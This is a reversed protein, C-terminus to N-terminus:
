SRSVGLPSSHTQKRGGHFIKSSLEQGTAHRAALSLVYKPPYHGGKHIICFKQAKRKPPVGDAEIEEIAKLIGERKIADPIMSTGRARSEPKTPYAKEYRSSLTNDVLREFTVIDQENMQYRKYNVHTHNWM